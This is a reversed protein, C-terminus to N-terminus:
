LPNRSLQQELEKRAKKNGIVIYGSKSLNLQLSKPGLLEEMRDNGYQAKDRDDAARTIDDM